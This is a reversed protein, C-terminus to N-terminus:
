NKPDHSNKKLEEDAWKDLVRIYKDPLEKATPNGKLYDITSGVGYIVYLEEKSPIFIAGFLLVISIVWGWIVSRKHLGRNREENKNYDAFIFALTNVTTILLGITSIICCTMSINGLTTIWYLEEM